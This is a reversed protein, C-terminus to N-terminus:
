KVPATVNAPAGYEPMALQDNEGARLRELGDILWDEGKSAVLPIDRSDSLANAVAAGIRLGTFSGPGKYIVVGTLSRWTAGNAQLLGQMSELLTATLRRDALWRKEAIREGHKSYLYIEAEPQDTRLGIIM